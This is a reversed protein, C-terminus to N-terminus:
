ITVVKKAKILLFLPFESYEKEIGPIEVFNTVAFNNTVLTKIYESIPRHYFYSKVSGKGSKVHTDLPIVKANLYRDIRRYTMKREEDIGWGSQRPIRFAPHLMAICVEAGPDTLENVEGLIQDLPDMDQISLLFIIKHFKTNKLDPASAMKAANIQLFNAKPHLEKAQKIMQLSNDVGFYMCRTKRINEFLIGTGCGVDLVKDKETLKLLELLYPMVYHHHKHGSTGAMGSYWKSLKNWNSRAM